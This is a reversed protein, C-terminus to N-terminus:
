KKQNWYLDLVKENNIYEEPSDEIEIDPAKIWSYLVGTAIEGSIKHSGLGNALQVGNNAWKALHKEVINILDDEYLETLMYRAEERKRNCFPCEDTLDKHKLKHETHLEIVIELKSKLM